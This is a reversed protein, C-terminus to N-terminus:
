IKTCCKKFYIKKKDIFGFTNKKNPEIIKFEAEETEEETNGISFFIVRGFM